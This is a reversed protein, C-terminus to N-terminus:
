AKAQSVQKATIKAPDCVGMGLGQSSRLEGEAFGSLPFPALFHHIFFFCSLEGSIQSSLDSIPVIHLPRIQIFRSELNTLRNRNTM